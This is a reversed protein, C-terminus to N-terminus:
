PGWWLQPIHEASEMYATHTQFRQEEVSLCRELKGGKQKPCYYIWRNKKMWYLGWNTGMSWKTKFNKRGKVFKTPDLSELYKYWHIIDQPLFVCAWVDKSCYHFINLFALFCIWCISCHCTIQGTKGTHDRRAKDYM